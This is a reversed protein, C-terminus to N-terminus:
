KSQLIRRYVEYFYYMFTKSTQAMIVDASSSAITVLDALRVKSGAGLVIVTVGHANLSDVSKKLRDKNFFSTADTFILLIKRRDSKATPFVESSALSAALDIRAGTRRLTLDNVLKEIYAVVYNDSFKKIVRASDDYSVLGIRIQSNTIPYRYSQLFTNVFEKQRSFIAEADPGYGGLAFAIDLKM